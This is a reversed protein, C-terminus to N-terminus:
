FYKVPPKAKVLAVDSLQFGVRIMFARPYIPDPSKHFVNYLATMTMDLKRHIAFRRGAGLLLADKWIRKSKGEQTSMGPSNQAYEAYGFFSKIVDYSSFLKGGIVDPALTPVDNFTQRYTGGFGITFRSTFRYGLQPAFDLSVPELNLIQFNTAVVLREKFTRGSLSTKKVATSLDNSNVVTSYRKMLWDTKRKVENLLQPNNDIYEMALEEAQQKLFEKRATFDNLNEAQGKFDNFKNQFPSRMSQLEGAGVEDLLRQELKPQIQSLANRGVSDPSMEAYGQIKGLDTKYGNVADTLQNVEDPMGPLKVKQKLARTKGSFDPRRFQRVKSTLEYPVAPLELAQKWAQPVQISDVTAAIWYTDLLMYIRTLEIPSFKLELDPPLQFSDNQSALKVIPQLTKDQALRLLRDKKNEFRRTLRSVKAQGSDMKSQFFRESEKVFKISDRHYYRLYLKRKKFPNNEAMLKTAHKDSLKLEPQFQGLVVGSNLLFLMVTIGRM